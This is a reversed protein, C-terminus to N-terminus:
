RAKKCTSTYFQQGALFLKGNITKEDVKTFTHKFPVPGKPTIQMGEWAITDGEWGASTLEGVHGPVNADVKARVFKKAGSDYGWFDAGKAPQKLEPSAIQEYHWVIWAGDLDDSATLFATSKMAPSFDTKLWDEQCNWKGVFYAFEKRARSADGPNDTATAPSVVLLMFSLALCGATYMSLVKM